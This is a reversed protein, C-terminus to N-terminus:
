PESLWKVLYYGIVVKDATGVAGVKEKHVILSM